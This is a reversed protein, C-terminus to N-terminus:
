AERATAAGLETPELEVSEDDKRGTVVHKQLFGILHVTERAQVL